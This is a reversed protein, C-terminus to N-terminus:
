RYTGLELCGARRHPRRIEEWTSNSIVVQGGHGTAAVRAAVHVDMGVYGEPTREPTGTHLGIRIRV